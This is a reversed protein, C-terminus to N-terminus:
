HLSILVGVEPRERDRACVLFPAAAQVAASAWHGGRWQDCAYCGQGGEEPQLDASSLVLLISTVGVNFILWAESIAGLKTHSVIDRTRDM